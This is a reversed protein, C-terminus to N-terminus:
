CSTDEDIPLADLFIFQLFISAVLFLQNGEGYLPMMMKALAM